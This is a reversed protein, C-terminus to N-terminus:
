FDEERAAAVTIGDYIKRRLILKANRGAMLACPESVARVGLNRYATERIVFDDHFRNIQAKSFFRLPIDYRECGEILGAEDRKIDITAATRIDAKKIGAENVAHIIANLVEGASVGRKCGIGLTVRKRTETGTTIVPEAGLAAAVKYAM